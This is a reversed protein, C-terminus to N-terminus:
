PRIDVLVQQLVRSLNGGAIKEVDSPQYGRVELGAWLAPLHSADELGRPTSTIGDFDSGIAIFDTGVLLALYDVHDLVDQLTVEGPGVLSPAFTVGILGGSAAIAKIQDDTLNRPVPCLRHCNSHSAIVPGPYIELVDWFSRAALHSVDIVMGLRHVEGVMERGARTLGGNAQNEGAGDALPNRENWTLGLSRVGLRYFMRLVGPDEGLAEAGELSLIAGIKGSEPLRRVDAATLVIELQGSSLAYERYFTDMIQLARYTAAWPKFQPEVWISFFQGGIGGRHMKPLDLHGPSEEVLRGRGSMIRYLADAHADIVLM